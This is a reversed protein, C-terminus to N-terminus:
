WIGSRPNFPPARAGASTERVLALNRSRPLAQLSEADADYPTQGEEYDDANWGLQEEWWVRTDDRLATLARSYVASSSPSDLQRLAQETM